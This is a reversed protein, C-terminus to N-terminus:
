FGYYSKVKSRSRISELANERKAREKVGPPQNACWVSAALGKGTFGPKCFILAMTELCRNVVISMM